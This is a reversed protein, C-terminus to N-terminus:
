PISLTGAGTERPLPAQSRVGACVSEVIHVRRACLMPSTRLADRHFMSWLEQRGPLM